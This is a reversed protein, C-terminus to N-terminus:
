PSTIGGLSTRPLVRPLVLSRLCVFISWWMSGFSQILTQKNLPRSRPPKERTCMVMAPYISLTRVKTDGHFNNMGSCGSRSRLSYIGAPRQPQATPARRGADSNAAAGLARHPTLRDLAVLAVAEIGLSTRQAQNPHM